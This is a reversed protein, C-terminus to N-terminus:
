SVRVPALKKRQRRQKNRKATKSEAIFGVPLDPVPKRTTEKAAQQPTTTYKKPKDSEEDERQPV